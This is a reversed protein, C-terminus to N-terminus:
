TWSIQLKPLYQQSYKVIRNFDARTVMKCDELNLNSLCHAVNVFQHIVSGEIQNCRTLELSELNPKVGHNIYSGFEDSTLFQINTLSLVQLESANKLVVSLLNEPLMDNEEVIFCKFQLLETFCMIDVPFNSLNNQLNQAILELYKLHPCYKGITHLCVDIQFLELKQLTIGVSALLPFIGDSFSLTVGDHTDSAITLDRLHRLSSLPQIQDNSSVPSLSAVTINPCYDCSLKIDSASVYEDHSFELYQIRPYQLNSSIVSPSNNMKHFHRFVIHNKEYDIDIAKSRQSIFIIVGDVTIQHKGGDCDRIRLTQLKSCPLSIRDSCLFNLGRQTIKCRSVDLHRM